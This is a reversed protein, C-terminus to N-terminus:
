EGGARLGKREGKERLGCRGGGWAARGGGVACPCAGETEQKDWWGMLERKLEPACVM